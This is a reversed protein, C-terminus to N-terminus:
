HGLLRELGDNQGRPSFQYRMFALHASQEGSRVGVECSLMPLINTRERELFVLVLTIKKERSDSGQYKRM